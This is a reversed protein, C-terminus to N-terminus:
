DLLIGEKKVIQDILRNQSQDALVVDIRQDGILSKLMVLFDIRKKVGDLVSEESQIYLDIDGGSRSDDIRSGFLYIKAHPFFAEKTKLIASIQNQSLRM